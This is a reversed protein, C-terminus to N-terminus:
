VLELVPYGPEHVTMEGCSIGRCIRLLACRIDHLAALPLGHLGHNDVTAGDYDRLPSGCIVTHPIGRIAQLDIRMLTSQGRPLAALDGTILISASTSPTGATVVVIHVPIWPRSSM